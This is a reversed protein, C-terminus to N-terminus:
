ASRPGSSAFAVLKWAGDEKTWVQLAHLEVRRLAGGLESPPFAPFTNILTGTMVATDGYIRVELDDTRRTQRPKGRLGALYTARDQTRGTAHTHSLDASLLRALTDVDGDSIASCRARELSILGETEESM